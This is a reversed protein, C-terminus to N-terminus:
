FPFEEDDSSVKNNSVTSTSYSTRGINSFSIPAVKSCIGGNILDLRDSEFESKSTRVSFDQTFSFIDSNEASAAEIKAGKTFKVVFGYMQGIKLQSAINETAAVNWQVPYDNDSDVVTVLKEDVEKVYGVITLDTNFKSFETTYTDGKQNKFVLHPVDDKLECEVEDLFGEASFSIKGEKNMFTSFKAYKNEGTGSDPNLRLRAYIDENKYEEVIRELFEIRTRLANVERTKEFIRNRVFVTSGNPLQLGVNFEEYAKGEKTNKQQVGGFVVRGILTGKVNGLTISM